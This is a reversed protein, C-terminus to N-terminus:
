VCEDARVAEERRRNEHLEDAIGMGMAIEERKHRVQSAFDLSRRTEEPNAPSVCVIMMTKSSGAGLSEQLVM